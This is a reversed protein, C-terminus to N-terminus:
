AIRESFRGGRILANAKPRDVVGTCAILVEDADLADDVEIPLEDAETSFDLLLEDVLSL